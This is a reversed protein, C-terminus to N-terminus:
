GFCTVGAILDGFPDQHRPVPVAVLLPGQMHDPPYRLQQRGLPGTHDELETIESDPRTRGAFAVEVRDARDQLLHIRLEPEDIAIVFVKRLKGLGGPRYAPFNGVPPDPQPWANIM